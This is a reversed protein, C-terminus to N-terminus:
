IAKYGKTSNHKILERLNMEKYGEEGVKEFERLEKEEEENRKYVVNGAKFECVAWGVLAIVFLAILGILGTSM